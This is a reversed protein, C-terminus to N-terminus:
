FKVLNLSRLVVKIQRDLEISISVTMKQSLHKLIEHFYLLMLGIVPSHWRSINLPSDNVWTFAIGERIDSQIIYLSLYPTLKWWCYVLLARVVFVCCNWRFIVFGEGNEVTKILYLYLLMLTQMLKEGQSTRNIM